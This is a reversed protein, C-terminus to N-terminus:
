RRVVKAPGDVRRASRDRPLNVGRGASIRRQRGMHAVRAFQQGKATRVSPHSRHKRLKSRAPSAPWLTSPTAWWPLCMERPKSRLPPQRPASARAAARAAPSPPLLHSHHKGQVPLPRRLAPAALALMHPMSVIVLPGPRQRRRAPVVRGRAAPEEGPQGPGHQGPLIGPDCPFPTWAPRRRALSHPAPRRGGRSRGRPPVGRSPPSRNIARPGCPITARCGVWGLWCPLPQCM